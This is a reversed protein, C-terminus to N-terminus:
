CRDDRHRRRRIEDRRRLVRTLDTSAGAGAAAMTENKLERSPHHPETPRSWRCSLFAKSAQVLWSLVLHIYVDFAQMM